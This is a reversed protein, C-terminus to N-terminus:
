AFSVSDVVEAELDPRRMCQHHHGGVQKRQELADFGTLAEQGGQCPFQEGHLGIFIHLQLRLDVLDVGLKCCPMPGVFAAPTKGFDGLM